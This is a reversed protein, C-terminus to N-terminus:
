YLINMSSRGRTGLYELDLESFLLMLEVEEEPMELAPDNVGFSNDVNVVAKDVVDDTLAFAFVLYFFSGLEGSHSKSGCSKTCCSIFLIFM